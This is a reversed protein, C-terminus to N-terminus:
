AVEKNQKQYSELLAQIEEILAIDDKTAGAPNALVAELTIKADRLTQKTEITAPKLKAYAESLLLEGTRYRNFIEPHAIVEPLFDRVERALIEGEIIQRYFFFLETKNAYEHKDDNWGLWKRVPIQKYAQDFFSFFQTETHERFGSTQMMQTLGQYARLLTGVRSVSLGVTEATQTHSYGKDNVLTNILFGQQYPGWSKVGSIHRVGQILISATDLETDENGELLLVTLYELSELLRRLEPYDEVKLVNCKASGIITRIAAFRRNGEVILYRGSSHKKVVIKDLDLFGINLISDMIHQGDEHEM